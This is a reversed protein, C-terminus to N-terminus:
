DIITIVLFRSDPSLSVVERNEDRDVGEMGFVYRYDMYMSPNPAEIVNNADMQEKGGGGGGSQEESGQLENTRETKVRTSASGPQCAAEHAINLQTISSDMLLRNAAARREQLLRKRRSRKQKRREKKSMAVASEHPVPHTEQKREGDPVVCNKDANVGNSSEGIPLADPAKRTRVNNLVYPNINRVKNASKNEEPSSRKQNQIRFRNSFSEVFLSRMANQHDTCRRCHNVDHGDKDHTQM